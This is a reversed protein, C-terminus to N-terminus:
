GRSVQLTINRRRCFTKTAAGPLERAWRITSLTTGDHMELDTAGAAKASGIDERTVSKGSKQVEGSIALLSKLKPSVPAASFDPCVQDVLEYSGDLQHAAIARHSTRCFYCDNRGSVFTAIMEREGASLTGPGRLLVEALEGM